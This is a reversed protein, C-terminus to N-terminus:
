DINDLVNKIVHIGENIVAMHEPYASENREFLRHLKVNENIPVSPGLLASTTAPHVGM